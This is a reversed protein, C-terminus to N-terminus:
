WPHSPSQSAMLAGRTWAKKGRHSDVPPGPTNIRLPWTCSWGGAGAGIVTVTTKKEQGQM